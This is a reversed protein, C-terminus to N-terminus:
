SQRSVAGGRRSWERSEPGGGGGGRRISSSYHGGTAAGSSNVPILIHDHLGPLMIKYASSGGGRRQPNFPNSAPSASSVASAIAGVFNGPIKRTLHFCELMSRKPRFLGYSQPYEALRIKYKATEDEGADDEGARVDVPEVSTVALKVTTPPKRIPSPVPSLSTPSQQKSSGMLKGGDAHAAGLTMAIRSQVAEIAGISPIRGGIYGLGGGAGVNGNQDRLNEVLGGGLSASHLQSAAAAAATATASQSGSLDPSYPLGYSAGNPRGDPEGAAAPPLKVTPSIPPLHVKPRLSSSDDSLSHVSQSLLLYDDMARDDQDAIYRDDSLGTLMTGITASSGLPAGISDVRQPMGSPFFRSLLRSSSASSASPVGTGSLGTGDDNPKGDYSLSSTPSSQGVSLSGGKVPSAVPTGVAAHIASGPPGVPPPPPPPASPASANAAPGKPPAFPRRWNESMQAPTNPKASWDAPANPGNGPGSLFSRSDVAGNGVGDIAPYRSRSGVPGWVNDNGNVLSRVYPPRSGENLGNRSWPGGRGMVNRANDWGASPPAGQPATPKAITARSVPPSQGASPESILFEIAATVSADMGEAGDSSASSEKRRGKAADHVSRASVAHEVEPSSVVASENLDIVQKPQGEEQQNEPQRAPQQQSQEQQQQPALQAQQDQEKQQERQRQEQEQQKKRVIEEARKRAAELREQERRQEEEKRKRANEISHKMIMEQEATIHPPRRGPEHDSENHHMQSFAMSPSQGASRPQSGQGGDSPTRGSEISVEDESPRSMSMRRRGSSSSVSSSGRRARSDRDDLPLEQRGTRSMIGVVKQQSPPPQPRRSNFSRRRVSEMQGSRDNFLEGGQGSPRSGYSRDFDMDSFRDRPLVIPQPQNRVDQSGYPPLDHDPPYHHYPQRVSEEQRFVNAGFHPAERDHIDNRPESKEGDAIKSLLSSPQAHPIPAWPSHAPHHTAPQHSPEGSVPPPGAHDPLNEHESQATKQAESPVEIKTISLSEQHHDHDHSLVVKTGDGFEITDGWDDDDDDDAWKTEKSEAAISETLHIGLKKLEEESFEKHPKPGAPQVQSRNWVHQTATRSGSGTGSQLGASGPRPSISLDRRLPALTFAGATTSLKPTMRLRAANLNTQSSQHPISSTTLKESSPKAAVASTAQLQRFIGNLSQPKFSKKATPAAKTTGSTVITAKSEASTHGSANSNTESGPTSTTRSLPQDTRLHQEGVDASGNNINDVLQKFEDTAARGPDALASDATAPPSPYGQPEANQPESSDNGEM